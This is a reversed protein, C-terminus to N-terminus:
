LSDFQLELKGGDKRDDTCIGTHDPLSQDIKQLIGCFGGGVPLGYAQPCFNRLGMEYDCDFVTTDAHCRFLLFMNKFREGRVFLATRSKAERHDFGRDIGVM